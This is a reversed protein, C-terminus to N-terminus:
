GRGYNRKRDRDRLKEADVPEIGEPLKFRNELFEQYDLCDPKCFVDTLSDCAEVLCVAALSAYVSSLAKIDKADVASNYATQISHRQEATTKIEHTRGVRRAQIHKDTQIQPCFAPFIIIISENTIGNSSAGWVIQYKEQLVRLQREVIWSTNIPDEAM